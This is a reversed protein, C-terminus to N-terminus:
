KNSYFTGDDKTFMITENSSEDFQKPEYLYKTFWDNIEVFSISLDALIQWYPRTINNNPSMVNKVSPDFMPEVYGVKQKLWPRTIANRMIYDHHYIELCIAYFIDPLDKITYSTIEELTCNGLYVWVNKLVAIKEFENILTSTNKHLIKPLELLSVKDACSEPSYRRENQEFVKLFEKELHDMNAGQAVYNALLEIANDIVDEEESTTKENELYQFIVSLLKKNPNNAIYGSILLLYTEALWPTIDYVELEYNRLTQRSIGGLAELIVNVKIGLIVRMNKMNRQIKNTKQFSISKTMMTSEGKM